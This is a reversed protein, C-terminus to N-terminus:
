EIPRYCLVVSAKPDQSIWEDPTLCPAPTMQYQGVYLWSSTDLRVLVRQIEPWDSPGEESVSSGFFLGPAGPWQPAHPNFFLNLYMFDNLGHQDLLAKRISPFTEQTNGGWRSSTFNRTTTVDRINPELQVDHMHHGIIALRRNVVDNSM